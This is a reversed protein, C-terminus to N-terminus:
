YNASKKLAILILNAVMFLTVIIIYFLKINIKCVFISLFYYIFLIILAVKKHKKKEEITLRKHENDIPAYKFIIYITMLIMVTSTIGIYNSPVIMIIGLTVLYISVFTLNCQIYSNAHYGGTYMRIPVFTSLFIISYVIKNLCIGIGIILLMGILSSIIIELGYVYIEKDEESIIDNNYFYNTINDSLYKIM